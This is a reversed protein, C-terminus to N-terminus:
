KSPFHQEFFSFIQDFHKLPEGHGGDTPIHKYYYKFKKSQLRNMIKECMPTSPWVEDKTASLLLIPGNIKEVKILAKEEALSDKLVAEFALRYYDDGKSIYELAEKNVPVFPLEKGKFSWSSTNFQMTHGPFVVHSPILGVVCKIDKFYSGMVLALEGGTSGGLIAIKKKNVQPNKTAETIANHIDEISIRSLTDPLGSAGFFAVALFAYGKELFQDKIGILRKSEAWANGGESGGLAVILPQNKGEGLYLISNTNPSIITIQGLMDSSIILFLGLIATKLFFTIKM